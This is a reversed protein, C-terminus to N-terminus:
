SNLYEKAKNKDSFYDTYLESNKSLRVKGEKFPNKYRTVKLKKSKIIKQGTYRTKVFWLIYKKYKKM